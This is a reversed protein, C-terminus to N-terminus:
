RFHGPPSAAACGLTSAGSQEQEFVQEALEPLLRRTDDHHVDLAVRTRLWDDLHRMPALNNRDPQDDSSALLNFFCRRFAEPQQEPPVAAVKHAHAATIVDKRFADRVDPILRLLTLRGYVYTVSKGVTAAVTEVTYALTAQCCDSM